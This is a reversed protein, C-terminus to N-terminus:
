IFQYGMIGPEYKYWITTIYNMRIYINNTDFDDREIISVYDIDKRKLEVNNLIQISEDLWDRCLLINKEDDSIFTDKVTGSDWFWPNLYMHFDEVGNRHKISILHRAADINRRILSIIIKNHYMALIEDLRRRFYIDDLKELSRPKSLLKVLLKDQTEYSLNDYLTEYAKVELSDM